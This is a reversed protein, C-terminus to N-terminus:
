MERWPVISRRRSYEIRNDLDLILRYKDRIREFLLRNRAPVGQKQENDINVELFRRLVGLLFDPITVGFNPKCVFNVICGKPHRNNEDKLAKHTEEVVRRIEQQRVKSNEEIVLCALKSEAAMLRRKLMANLLCLYTAEYEKPDSLRSMAVYGEFPLTEMRGVFAMILDETAESHHLGKKEVADLDGAAYPDSLEKALEDRVADIILQQHQSVAMAAVLFHAGDPHIFESEDIFIYFPERQQNKPEFSVKMGSNSLIMAWSNKLSTSLRPEHYATYKVLGDLRNVEKQVVREDSIGLHGLHAHLGYKGAYYLEQRLRRKLQKPVHPQTLDSVSLGTVYHAQGLKSIRTKSEAVEFGYRQVCAKIDDLPPLSADSSFSIDDAYRSFVAEFRNALASLDKDMPLCIANSIIPSTPLGLPLTGGITVFKSLLDAVVKTMGTSQFLDSIRTSKISPFFSELDVSILNRHGCHDRANEKINRGGIYGFTRPHPFGEVRHSFYSRLKRSLAKFNEKTLVPEWVTRFGRQRNKKPIEHLLFQPLTVTAITATEYAHSSREQPDFDLVKDFLEESIGLIRLLGKKDALRDLHLQYPM